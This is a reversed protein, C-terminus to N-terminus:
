GNKVEKLRKRAIELEKQPTEQTKKIFVHLIVIRKGVLTCFFGRAIGEKGKARIEFLGDGMARTYPMGFNSGEQQMIAKTIRTFKARIGNPLKLVSEQVGEDYFGVTFM